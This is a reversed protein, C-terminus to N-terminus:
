FPGDEAGPALVVLRLAVLHSCSSTKAPCDCWWSRVPDYGLRYQEGDGRCIARVRQDSPKVFAVSLRGETLYRRGKDDANERPM